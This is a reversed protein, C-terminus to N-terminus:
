LILMADGFSYFRYGYNIAHQYATKIREEGALASVLVLLTSKPLHFNTFLGDVTTFSYGPKIFLDIWGEKTQGQFSELVRVSTTGIAIIRNGRAKAERIAKATEESLHGWETHMVHEELNLTKIPRFTGLGVHLTVFAKNIGYKSLNEFLESTFHLGATPAAVSGVHKAYITQYDQEQVDRPDVYPPIPIEGHAESLSFVEEDGRQFDVLCTGQIADKGQLIASTGDPLQLVDGARLKKVRDILVRWQGSQGAEPHLLFLEHQRSNHTVFLRARFVKSDNFILLDGEDLFAPLDRVQKDQLTDNGRPLVLMKAQDRPEISYQAIRDQPLHYDFLSTEM